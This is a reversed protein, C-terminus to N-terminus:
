KPRGKGTADKVLRNLVKKDEQPKLLMRTQAPILDSVVVLEEAKLGHIIFTAGGQNYATKVPRIELRKERDVVYVKNDHLASVPIVVVKDKPKKRLEVEVFTNRVLPPRQGPRAKVYPNDVVVVVGLTQSQPDIVGAARDVRAEWDVTHTATRLRVIADLDMVGPIRDVAPTDVGNEKEPKLGAILHRLKGIPFRAEIEVSDIGDASFLLQGKNAYQAHSVKVETLRIDFPAILVTHKLDLEAVAGQTMLVEREATNIALTNNLNQLTLEDKLILRQAEELVSSSLAGRAHLKRKREFGKLLLAHSNEELTLSAQTARYQVDLAKLQSKAQTLALKYSSDDIRLLEAGQEVIRGNKLQDSLWAVQGAVEAVAEWTKAPATKGYGVTRLMVKIKPARIVRVKVARETVSAKQPPTKIMPTVFLVALAVLVPPIFWFRRIWHKKM